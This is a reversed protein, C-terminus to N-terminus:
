KEKRMEEKQEGSLEEALAQMAEILASQASEDLEGSQRIKAAAECAHATLWQPLRVIFAPVQELPV